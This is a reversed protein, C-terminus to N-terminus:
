DPGRRTEHESASTLIQHISQNASRLFESPRIQLESRHPPQKIYPPPLSLRATGVALHNKRGIGKRTPPRQPLRRRSPLEHTGASPHTAM